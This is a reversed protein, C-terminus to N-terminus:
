DKPVCRASATAFRASRISTATVATYAPRPDAPASARLGVVSRERALPPARPSRLKSREFIDKVLRAARAVRAWAVVVLYEDTKTKERIRVRRVGKPVTFGGHKQYFCPKAM